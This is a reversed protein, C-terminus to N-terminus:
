SANLFSDVNEKSLHVWFYVYVCVCLWAYICVCSLRTFKNFFNEKCGKVCGKGASSGVSGDGRSGCWWWVVVM